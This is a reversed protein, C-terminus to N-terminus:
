ELTSMRQGTGVARTFLRVLALRVPDSVGAAGGVVAYSRNLLAMAALLATDEGFQLHNTPRGRRLTANDMAPLDDLVLSATHVMELACAPDLAADSDGGLYECSLLCLLPRLRKGPAMLSYCIAEHLRPPTCQSEPLLEALRRDVSERLEALRPDATEPAPVGATRVSTM